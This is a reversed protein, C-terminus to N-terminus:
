LIDRVFYGRIISRCLSPTCYVGEQITFQYNGSAPAVFQVGNNANASVTINPFDIQSSQSLTTPSSTPPNVPANNSTGCGLDQGSIQEVAIPIRVEYTGTSGDVIVNGAHVEESWRLIFEMNTAPPAILRQSKSVNRYQSYKASISGEVIMKYGAKCEAEGEVTTVFSRSLTQESDAKGGCNNIHVTEDYSFASNSLENVQVDPSSGCGSLLIFAILFVRQVIASKYM